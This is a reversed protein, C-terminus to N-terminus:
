IEAIILIVLIRAESKVLAASKRKQEGDAFAPVNVISGPCGLKEGLPAKEFLLMAACITLPFRSWIKPEVLIVTVGL